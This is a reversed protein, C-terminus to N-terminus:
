PAESGRNHGSAVAETVQNGDAEKIRHAIWEAIQPVVANGLGRLRDVRAPVGHAVRGVNPEPLWRSVGSRGAPMEGHRDQEWGHTGATDALLRRGSRTHGTTIAWQPIPRKERVGELGEDYPYAVIWVRDRRHPASVASAPICDWEVGYGSEALDRLISGFFRGDDSSLLGPVNEAVVWRPEVARICRVYEPWLDRDDSGAARKGALSHPQCPFGGCVVDVPEVTAWDIGRIDGYRTVGPWHKALVRSAYDDIEVQWKIEFGAREFGLDFGGIGAFLSGVTV